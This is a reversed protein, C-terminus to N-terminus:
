AATTLSPDNSAAKQAVLTCMKIYYDQGFENKMKNVDKHVWQINDPVYGRNSDIRDLSATQEAGKLINRLTEFKLPLGTLACKKDQDLFLQWIEEMTISFEFGQKEARYKLVSFFQASLDGVGRWHPHDKGQRGNKGKLPHQCGCSKARGSLLFDERREILEGCVCKCRWYKRGKRHHMKRFSEILELSHVNDGVKFSSM